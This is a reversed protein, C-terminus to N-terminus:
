YGDCMLLKEWAECVEGDELGAIGVTKLGPLKGERRAALLVELGGADARDVKLEVLRRPLAALVELDAGAGAGAGYAISLRRLNSAGVFTGFTRALSADPAFDSLDVSLRTLPSSSRSLGGQLASLFPLSFLSTPEPHANQRLTMHRLQRLSRLVERTLCPNNRTPRADQALFSYPLSPMLEIHVLHRLRSLISLTEMPTSLAFGTFQLKRLRPLQRLFDLSHDNTHAAVSKLNPYYKPIRRLVADYFEHYDRGYGEDSCKYISFARVNPLVALAARLAEHEVSSDFQSPLTLTFSLSDVSGLDQLSAHNLWDYLDTQSEFILPHNWVDDEPDRLSSM